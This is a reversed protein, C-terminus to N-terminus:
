DRIDEAVTRVIRSQRQRSIDGRSSISYDREICREMASGRGPGPEDTGNAECRLVLGLPCASSPMTQLPDMPKLPTGMAM